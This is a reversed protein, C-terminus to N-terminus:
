RSARVTGGALPIVRTSESLARRIKRRLEANTFPKELLEMRTNLGTGILADSYGSMLILRSNPRTVAWEDALEIGDMTGRLVLDSLLLDITGDYSHAINLAEEGTAAQLVTYGCKELSTHLMEALAEEDEVVLITAPSAKESLLAAIPVVNASEGALQPLYIKFTTGRGLESYVWIYGGSQKVIGYVISLGFGTGKGREKTTFFPEFIHSATNEDMGVGTDSVAIMVYRGPVVPGQMRPYQSDLEVNCTSITLRGGNPMADRANIALNILVQQIQIPDVKVAALDDATRIELEIKEGILTRLMQALDTVVDTLHVARLQMVQKRSFALLQRTVGAARHAAKAIESVQRRLATDSEPIQEQMLESYGQIVGLINNFDHAVGAALRGIAELKQAQAMEQEFHKRETIDRMLHVAGELKGNGNRLPVCSIRLIKKLHPETIEAEEERGSSLMRQFPCEQHASCFNHVVAFCEKGILDHAGAGLLTGTASNALLIRGARDLLMISDPIADFTREWAEKSAQIKAQLQQNEDRQSKEQLARRVAMPLRELNEKLVYDNAGNKLYEVAREDGLTGTVVIFPIDRGSRQLIQLADMANWTQLNHDSLILDFDGETLRQQFSEPTDVRHAVIPLGERQLLSIMLEADAASDDVVLIRVRRNADLTEGL